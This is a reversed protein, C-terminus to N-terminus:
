LSPWVKIMRNGDAVHARVSVFRHIYRSVTRFSASVSMVTLTKFIFLLHGEAMNFCGLYAIATYSIGRFFVITKLSVQFVCHLARFTVILITNAMSVTRFGYSLRPCIRWGYKTWNDSGAFVRWGGPLSVDGFIDLNPPRAKFCTTLTMEIIYNEQSHPFSIKTMRIFLRSTTTSLPEFTSFAHCCKNGCVEIIRDRLFM